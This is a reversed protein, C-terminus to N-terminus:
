YASAKIYYERENRDRMSRVRCYLLHNKNNSKKVHIADSITPFEM